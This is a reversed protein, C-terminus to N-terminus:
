QSLDYIKKGQYFFNVLLWLTPAVFGIKGQKSSLCSLILVDGFYAAINTQFTLFFLFSRLADIQLLFHSLRRTNQQNWIISCFTNLYHFFILYIQKGLKSFVTFLIVDLYLYIHNVIEQLKRYM